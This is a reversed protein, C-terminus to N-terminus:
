KQDRCLFLQITILRLVFSTYVLWARMVGYAAVGYFMYEVFFHFEYIEADVALGKVDAVYIYDQM